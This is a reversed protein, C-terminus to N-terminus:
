EINYIEFLKKQVEKAHDFGMMIFIKDYEVMKQRIVTLLYDNRYNSIDNYITNIHNTSFYIYNKANFETWNENDLNELNTYPELLESVQKLTIEQNFYGIHKDEWILYDVVKKEFNVEKKKLRNWQVMQRILYMTLVDKKGYKGILYKNVSSDAPEIDYCNIEYEQALFCVYESEGSKRASLDDKHTVTNAHGEVLVAEPAFEQFEVKIENFMPNKPNNGHIGNFWFLEKGNSKLKLHEGGVRKYLKYESRCGMLIILALGWIIQGIKM